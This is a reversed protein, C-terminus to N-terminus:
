VIGFALMAQAVRRFGVINAGIVYYGAASNRGRRTHFNRHIHLMIEHLRCNPQIRFEVHRPERKQQMELASTAVGGANAAKCATCNPSARESFACVPRRLPM